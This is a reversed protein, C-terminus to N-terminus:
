AAYPLAQGDAAAFIEVGPAARQAERVLEAPDAALSPPLHTLALTRVGARAAVRGADGATSHRPLHVAAMAADLGGVEHILVDAGRAAAILRECPLTDGSYAIRIGGLDLVCGAAGGGEPLHDVEVLTISEDPALPVAQGYPPTVWTLRPGLLREAGADAAALTARVASATAPSAYLRLPAPADGGHLGVWLLFAELGGAHDLHRHSLFIHGVSLPDVGQALLSRIVDLGGGVDLLVRAGSAEVLISAQQREPNAAGGTGLFLIRARTM